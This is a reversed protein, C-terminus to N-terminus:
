GAPSSKQRHATEQGLDRFADLDVRRHVTWDRELALAEPLSLGEGRAYLRLIETVAPQPAIERALAVTRELLAHHAVVHNVLGIRLAEDADIFNGTISMERAKRLGVARPLLGSLGWGAVVNLRAHTDAFRARESAVVFTCSLAIELAGSVCAGNVACITPTVAARLAAAPDPRLAWDVARREGSAPREKFDVGASFVPDTGTIVIASVGSDADGVAVEEILAERMALTMANKAEPRDLTLVRIGDDDAVHLNPHTM